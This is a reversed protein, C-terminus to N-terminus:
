LPELQFNLHINGQIGITCFHCLFQHFLYQNVLEGNFVIKGVREPDNAEILVAEGIREVKSGTCGETFVAEGIREVGPDHKLFYHKM